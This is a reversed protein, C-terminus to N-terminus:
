QAFLFFHQTLRGEAISGGALTQAGSHFYKGDFLLMRNYRMPIRYMEEWAALDLTDREITERVAPNRNDELSVRELALGRHRYFYTGERDDRSLHIVVSYEPTDVHVLSSRRSMDDQTTVRFNGDDSRCKLARGGLLDSFREVIPRIDQPTAATRGPYNVGAPYSYDLGLAMERVADPDEYFDDIVILPIM